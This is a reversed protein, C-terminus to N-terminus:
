RYASYGMLLEHTDQGGCGVPSGAASDRCDCRELGWAAGSALLLSPTCCRAANIPYYTEQQAFVAVDEAYGTVLGATGAECRTPLPDASAHCSLSVVALAADGPPVRGSPDDPLSGPLCPRCCIARGLPVYGGGIVQLM